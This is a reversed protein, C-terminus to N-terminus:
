RAVARYRDCVSSMHFTVDNCADTHQEDRGNRALACTIM